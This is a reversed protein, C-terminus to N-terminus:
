GGIADVLKERLPDGWAYWAQKLAGLAAGVGAAVGAAAALKVATWDFVVANAPLTAAVGLLAAKFIAFLRYSLM